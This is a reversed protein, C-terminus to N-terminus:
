KLGKWADQCERLIKRNTTRYYAKACTAVTVGMLEACVELSIGQEACITQAFTGRGCHTSLHKKIKVLKAIDKLARNIEQETITLPLLRMRLLNRHLPASIPMTVWEKNKKARLLIRDEVVHQRLDFAFWDSIRLGSYCGLLFYVATQKLVPDEVSDAYAEWRDLEMLTLRDKDKQQYTPNEYNNFPYHSIIGRRRAANFFTKLMKWNAYIYNGDLGEDRLSNEYRQLFPLDIEEFALQRSGHFLELKRSYKDYNKLTSGERKHRVNDRYEAIFDFINHLNRSAAFHVKVQDASLTNGAVQQEVIYQIVNKKRTQLDPNYQAHLPHAARIMETKADWDKEKLFIGSAIYRRVRNITVRLYIPYLGQPNPDAEWLLLKVGYKIM